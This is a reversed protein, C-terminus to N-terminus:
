LLLHAIELPTHLLLHIGIDGTRTDTGLVSIDCTRLPLRQWHRLRGVHVMDLEVASKQLILVDVRGLARLKFKVSGPMGYGLALTLRTRTKLM